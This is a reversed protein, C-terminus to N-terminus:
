TCAFYCDAFERDKPAVIMVYYIGCVATKLNACFDQLFSNSGNTKLLMDFHRVANHCIGGQGILGKHRVLCTVRAVCTLFRTQGCTSNINFIM